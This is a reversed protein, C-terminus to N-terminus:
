LENFHYPSFTQYYDPLHLNHSESFSTYKKPSFDALVEKIILLM